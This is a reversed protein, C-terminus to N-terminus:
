DDDCYQSPLPDDAARKFLDVHFRPFIGAPIDSEVVHPSILKAVKYKSHLWNLKKSSRPFPVNKPNLWVKDGEKFNGVQQRNWNTTDEM